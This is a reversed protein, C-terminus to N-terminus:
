PLALREPALRAEIATAVAELAADKRALDLPTELAPTRVDLKAGREILVLASGALSKQLALLLLPRDAKRFNLNPDLGRAVLESFATFNKRELAFHAVSCEIKDEAYTYTHGIHNVDAGRDILALAAAFDGGQASQCAQQGLKKKRHADFAKKLPNYM